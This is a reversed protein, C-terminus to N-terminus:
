SATEKVSSRARPAVGRGPCQGVGQNPAEECSGGARAGAGVRIGSGLISLRNELCLHSSMTGLTESNLKPGTLQLRGRGMSIPSKVVNQQMLALEERRGAGM